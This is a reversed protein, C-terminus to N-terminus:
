DLPPLRTVSAAIGELDRPCAGEDSLLVHLRVGRRALEAAHPEPVRGTYGDTIVLTTRVREHTLLHDSVCDIRTGYTTTLRGARLAAPPLPWVETSFQFCRLRGAAAHPALLDVLSPLVGSMSGSVDLYVHASVTVDPVRAVVQGPQTWLLGPVGLNRRAPALRDRPNPLPGAGTIVPVSARRRRQPDRGSTPFLRRLLEAFARRARDGPPRLGVEEITEVTGDGRARVVIDPRGSAPGVTRALIGGLATSSAAARETTEAIGPAEDPADHDGLLTVSGPDWAGASRLLDLIDEHSPKTARGAGPGPYLGKLIEATGPPGVVDYCPADPWGVPPRLLLAPFTDPRNVAEFFGDFDSGRFRTRLLANIIADFAVNHAPTPREAIVTHALMVHWLEHLVLLMLHEDRTCHRDVFDPNVRLRPRRGGTVAASPVDRSESIGVIRCFTDLELSAAPVLRVIRDILGSM